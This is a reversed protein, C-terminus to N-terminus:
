KVGNAAARSLRGPTELVSAVTDLVYAGAKRLPNSSAKPALAAKLTAAAGIFRDHNLSDTGAMNSIDILQIGFEDALAQIRPDHVDLGGLRERDGGLRNSLQLARDDPSTLVTLPPELRGVVAAQARFVDLDIDPAALLVTDLRQLVQDRGTLRLRLLSEMTLWCGMSHAALTIERNRPDQALMTLVQALYERSYTAADKDAVYGSLTGDSPWAFLIARGESPNDAMLQAMRLVSEAYTSNYGHVFVLVRGDDPEPAKSVAATDPAAPPAAPTTDTAAASRAELPGHGTLADDPLPAFALTAFSNAPDVPRKSSWEISAPKHNPPVSIDYRAFSLKAARANGFNGPHEADPARNTAVFLRVRREQQHLPAVPTLVEPGPRAGCAALLCWLPVCLLARRAAGGPLLPMACSFVTFFRRM